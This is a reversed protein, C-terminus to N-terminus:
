IDVNFATFAAGASRSNCMFSQDNRECYQRNLKSFVNMAKLQIVDWMVAMYFELHRGSLFSASFITM